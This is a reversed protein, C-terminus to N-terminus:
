TPAKIGSFKITQAYSVNGAIHFMRCSTASSILFQTCWILLCSSCFAHVRSIGSMAQDGSESWQNKLRLGASTPFHPPHELRRGGIGVEIISRLCGQNIQTCFTVIVCVDSPTCRRIFKNFKLYQGGGGRTQASRKAYLTIRQQIRSPSTFM